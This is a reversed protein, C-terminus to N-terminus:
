PVLRATVAGTVKNVVMDYKWVGTVPPEPPVVVPKPYCVESMFKIDTPSWAKNWGVAYSPDTLLRPDIAYHMVSLKDYNSGNTQNISYTQFINSDITARDWNNPPGSYYKYVATRNWPIGASPHQHEHGAGLGHGLIEHIVTGEDLWGLNTTPQNKPIGLCDTGMYNWAGQSSNFAVRFQSEAAPVDWQFDLYIHSRNADVVDRVYKRQTASGGLFHVGLTRGPKWLKGTLFFIRQPLVLGEAPAQTMGPMSNSPNEEVALRAFLDMEAISPRRDVCMRIVPRASVAKRAM